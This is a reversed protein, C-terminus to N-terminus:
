SFMMCFSTFVPLYVSILLCDWTVNQSLRLCYLVTDYENLQVHHANRIRKNGEIMSDSVKIVYELFTTHLLCWPINQM